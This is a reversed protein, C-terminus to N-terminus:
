HDIVCIYTKNFAEVINHFEIDLNKQKISHKYIQRQKNLIAKNSKRYSKDYAKKSAKTEAVTVAPRYRNVCELTRVYHGELQSLEDKSKCAKAEILEIVCNDVGYLEFLIYSSIHSRKNDRKWVKYDSRHKSMRQSLYLKTTAGIYIQPGLHSYIKYIKTNNYDSM